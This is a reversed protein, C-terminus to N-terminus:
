PSVSQLIQLALTAFNLVLSFGAVAYALTVPDICCSLLPVLEGDEVEDREGDTPPTLRLAEGAHHHHQGARQAVVSSDALAEFVPALSAAREANALRGQANSLHADERHAVDLAELRLDVESPSPFFMGGLLRRWGRRPPSVATAADNISGGVAGEGMKENTARLIAADHSQDARM